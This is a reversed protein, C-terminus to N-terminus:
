KRPYGGTGALLACVLYPAYATMGRSESTITGALTTKSVLSSSSQVTAYM